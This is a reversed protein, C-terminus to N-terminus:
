DFACGEPETGNSGVTWLYLVWMVVKFPSHMTLQM